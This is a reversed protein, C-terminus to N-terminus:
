DVPDSSSFTDCRGTTPDRLVVSMSVVDERLISYVIRMFMFMTLKSPSAITTRDNNHKMRIEDPSWKLASGHKQYLCFFEDLTIRKKYFLLRLLRVLFLDPAVQAISDLRFPDCISKEDFFLTM